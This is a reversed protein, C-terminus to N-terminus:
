MVDIDKWMSKQSKCAVLIVKDDRHRPEPEEEIVDQSSTTSLRYAGSKRCQATATDESVVAQTVPLFLHVPGAHGHCSM